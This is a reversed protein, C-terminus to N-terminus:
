LFPSMRTTLSKLMPPVTAVTVTKLHSVAHVAAPLGLLSQASLLRRCSADEFVAFQLVEVEVAAKQPM